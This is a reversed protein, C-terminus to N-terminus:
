SAKPMIFLSIVTRAITVSIATGIETWDM